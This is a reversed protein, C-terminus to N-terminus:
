NKWLFLNRPFIFFYIIYYGVGSNRFDIATEM